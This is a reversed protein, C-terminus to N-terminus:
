RKIGGYAELKRMSDGTMEIRHAKRTIRDLISDAFSADGIYEAWKSIPLVSTIILSGYDAFREALELLFWRSRSNIEVMGRDDLLLLDMKSYEKLKDQCMGTHSDWIPIMGLVAPIRLFKAKMGKRCAENALACAIWTKGCGTAGTILCHQNNAVWDCSALTRIMKKDLGREMSFDIDSIVANPYKTEASKLRRVLANTDRRAIEEHAIAYLWEAHSMNVTDPDMELNIAADLMGTLRLRKMLPKLEQLSKM